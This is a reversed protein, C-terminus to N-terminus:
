LTDVTAEETWWEEFVRLRATRGKALRKGEKTKMMGEIKFLKEETHKISDELMRGRAGGFAFVRAIGVAGIADLRDADQVFAIEPYKNILAMMEGPGREIEKSYSVGDVVTQIHSALLDDAGLSVLADKVPEGPIAHEDVYKRDGVDHLLAALIVITESDLSSNTSQKEVSFIHKTLAVVREIHSFDHSGDFRPSSMYSRTWHTTREILERAPLANHTFSM